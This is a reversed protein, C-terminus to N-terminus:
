LLHEKGQKKLSEVVAKVNQSHGRPVVLVADKTAIVTMRELGIGAILQGSESLFLSDKCDIALTEGRSIVGDADPPLHDYISDWSGVDDWVFEGTVVAINRAHEMLAFDISIKKLPLYADALAAEFAPTGYRAGLGELAQVLWTCHQRLQTLVVSSKWCFIGANWRYGGHQLYERAKELTPKEVFREVRNVVVGHVDHLREGLHIYGYGTAPFRPAIGYTVLSGTRAVAAGASLAVQFDDAPSIVHDAPLMIMVADPHIREVVIAALCVCAATDRGVPEAIIHEPKLMPLQRRTEAVLATTTVVLVREAPILPQLRAVTSQIMTTEGIIRGLQKPTAARSLPWFRTGSGGAMIVAYLDTNPMVWDATM